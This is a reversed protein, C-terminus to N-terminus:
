RILDVVSGFHEDFVQVLHEYDDSMMDHIISEGDLGLDKAWRKAYGMLVFANGEPGTLDIQQKRYPLNEKKIIAMM